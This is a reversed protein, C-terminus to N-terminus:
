GKKAALAASIREELADGGVGIVKGIEALYAREEDVVKGDACAADILIVFAHSQVNPPLEAFSRAAEEKDVIPFLADRAEAPLEFGALMHDIFADEAPDLDDDAVVLGAILQCVKRRTTDDM